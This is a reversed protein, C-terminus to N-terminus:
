RGSERAITKPRGLVDGLITTGWGLTRNRALASRLQDDGNGVDSSRRYGGGKM